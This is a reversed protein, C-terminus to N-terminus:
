LLITKGRRRKRMIISKISESRGVALWSLLLDVKEPAGEFVVEVTGDPLNRVWGSLGLREAERRTDRFAVRQAGAWAGHCANAKTGDVRASHSWPWFFQQESLIPLGDAGGAEKAARRKVQWWM